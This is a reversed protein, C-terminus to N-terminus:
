SKIGKESRVPTMINYSFGWRWEFPTLKGHFSFPLERLQAHGVFGM